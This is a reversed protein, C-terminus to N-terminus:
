WSVDYRKLLTLFTSPVAIKKDVGHNAMEDAMTNHERLVHMLTYSVEKLLEFVIQSLMTLDPNKIKYVRKIQQVLLLSDSIITVSDGEKFHTALVLLGLILAAYEAQNNTRKGLYFGKKVIPENDKTIVIGAGAPGPNGRSAGDVYLHWTTSRNAKKIDKKEPGQHEFFSLQKVSM